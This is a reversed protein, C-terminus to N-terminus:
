YNEFFKECIVFIKRITVLLSFKKKIVMGMFYEALDPFERRIGNTYIIYTQNHLVYMKKGRLMTGYKDKRWKRCTEMQKAHTWSPHASRM